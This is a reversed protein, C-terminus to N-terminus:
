SRAPKIEFSHKISATEEIIASVSCYKEFSSAIAQAAKTEKIEGYLTYHAEIATYIRPMEERREGKVTVEIHEVNQRMKELIIVIDITSCGGLAMLVAEMPGVSKGDNGLIISDGNANSAKYRNLSGETEIQVEIM